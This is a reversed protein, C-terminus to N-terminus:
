TSRCWQCFFRQLKMHHDCLEPLTNDLVAVRELLLASTTGLCSSNDLGQGSLKADTSPQYSPEETQLVLRHRCLISYFSLLFGYLMGWAKMARRSSMRPGGNDM